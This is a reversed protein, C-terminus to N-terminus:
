QQHRRRNAHDQVAGRAIGLVTMERAGSGGFLRNCVMHLLSGVVRGEPTEGAARVCAALRGVARDRPRLADLVRAGAPDRALVPWGAYPDVLERWRASRARFAAPLDRRSGTMSLWTAAADDGYGEAAKPGGPVPTGFAHALAACSLVALDDVDYGNAPDKAVRLLAVAAESDYRFVDEAPRRAAPGGYRETEPDYQDLSHGRVLGERQWRRLLAGLAPVATGWLTEPRTGHLRLRLHHGRDDTYRVFFWRDAGHRGALEVLEPVHERLLDDQARASGHLKLYLWEGGLGHVPRPTRPTHSTRPSHPTHVTYPAHPRGPTTPAHPTRLPDPTRPASAAPSPAAGPTRSETRGSRVPGRSGAYPRRLPRGAARRTMPVVLEVVHGALPSDLWDEHEGPVEQAILDPHRALQDLLLERHWVDDLDLLLRQDATVALVRRPVDWAARWDAVARGWDATRDGDDRTRLEHARTRLGDPRWVASALVFRGRRLRPVFPADAFPGWNWPEWLRQGELGIEWLLRVANPAQAPASVMNGLVPVIERRTPMHVATLRDLTAGIGIDVLRLEETGPADPLGVGIRRGTAPITHALNAARGSRPRFALDVAVADQVHVPNERHLAAFEAEWSPHQDAFRAFTSGARHSGPSPSLFVLFEGADLAAVSPAVVQVTVECSNPVDALDATDHCLEDLDADDLVAERRGSRQAVAVLRAVARNRRATRPGEFPEAPVPAAESNPWGYGAPAGLGTSPDLLELVPVVRDAGYVDLFRRHHDRLALLGLKPRSLRWMVGAAAEIEDRVAYPLRVDADLRTDVHLPTDDRELSRATSLLGSLEERGAGVPRTDYAKRREEVALLADRMRLTEGSPETVRALLGLVHHLPDGGDLPPRLGTLLIEQRVLEALLGRVREPSAGPFAETTRRLLEGYPLPHIAEAVAREVAATRRVSVASRGEGGEGPPVGQTSPATLVLRDGRAVLAQHAQVTLTSLVAPDRELRHGIRTLWQMDVHTRTRHATGREVKAGTGFRGRAVGAFLGFPTPRTRMRIDYRLVALAARRLQGPKIGGPGHESVRRVLAGLSPSALDLAEGLVTDAAASALLGACADLSRPDGGAPVRLGSGAETRAGSPPTPPALPARYLFVDKAEFPTGPSTRRPKRASTRPPEETPTGPTGGPPMGFPSPTGPPTQPRERM